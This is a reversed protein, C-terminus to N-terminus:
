ELQLNTQPPHSGFDPLCCANSFVIVSRIPRRPSDFCGEKKILSSVMEFPRRRCRRNGKMLLRPVVFFESFGSTADSSVVADCRKSRPVTRCVLIWTRFRTPNKAFPQSPTTFGVYSVTYAKRCKRDKRVLLVSISRCLGVVFLVVVVIAGTEWGFHRCWLSHFQGGESCFLKCIPIHIGSHM